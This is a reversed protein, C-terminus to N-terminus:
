QVHRNGKDSMRYVKVIEKSCSKAYPCNACFTSCGESTEGELLYGRNVLEDIAGDVMGRDLNLEGALRSRSIYGDRKIIKLIDELM